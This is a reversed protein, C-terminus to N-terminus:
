MAQSARGGPRSFVADADEFSKSAVNVFAASDTANTTYLSAELNLQTHAVRYAWSKAFLTESTTTWTSWDARYARVAV